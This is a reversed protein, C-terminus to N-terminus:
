AEKEGRSEERAKIWKAYRVDIGTLMNTFFEYAKHRLSTGGDFHGEFVTYVMMKYNSIKVSTIIRQNGKPDDMEILKNLQAKLHMLADQNKELDIIENLSPHIIEDCRSSLEFTILTFRTKGINVPSIAKMERELREESGFGLEKWAGRLRLENATLKELGVIEAYLYSGNSFNIKVSELSYDCHKTLIATKTEFVVGGHHESNLTIEKMTRRRENNKVITVTTIVPANM